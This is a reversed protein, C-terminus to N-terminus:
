AESWARVIFLLAAGTDEVGAEEKASKIADLLAPRDELAVMCSFAVFQAGGDMAIPTAGRFGDADDSGNAGDAGDNGDAPPPTDLALRDYDDSLRAIEIEDFGLLSIDFSDNGLATIETYLLSADWDGNLTLKNDAIRYARKQEDSWGTAIIVPAEDYGLRKGAMLRGHGAIIEGNEDILVPITWGWEDMSAALQNIQEDSHTRANQAYEILSEIPRREVHDAPWLKIAGEKAHKAEITDSSM